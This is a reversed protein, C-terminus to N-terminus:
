HVGGGGNFFGTFAVPRFLLSIATRRLERTYVSLSHLARFFIRLQTFNASMTNVHAGLLKLRSMVVTCFSIADAFRLSINGAYFPFLKNRPSLSSREFERGYSVPTPTKSSPLFFFYRRVSTAYLLRSFVHFFFYFVSFGSFM